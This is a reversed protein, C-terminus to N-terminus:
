RRAREYDVGYLAWRIPEDIEEDYLFVQDSYEDDEFVADDTCFVHVLRARGTVLPTFRWIGTNDYRVSLITGDSFGILDGGETDLYPFEGSIDGEVEVLDDSAGYVKIM